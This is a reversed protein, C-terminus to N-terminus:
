SKEHNRTIGPLTEATGTCHSPAVCTNHSPQAARFSLSVGPLALAASCGQTHRHRRAPLLRTGTGAPPEPLLSTSNVAMIILLTNVMHQPLQRACPAEPETCPPCPSSCDGLVQREDRSWGRMRPQSGFQQCCAPSCCSRSSQQLISFGQGARSM